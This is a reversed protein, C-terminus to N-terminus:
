GSGSWAPRGPVHGETAETAAPAAHGEAETTAGHGETAHAAPEMGFWNRMAAEDGFFVNYWLMGSFIAGMALVGLPILMVAPSEHPEYHGHGHDDHGHADHGHHHDDHGHAKARSEGFFTLFMLRWSYFSTLLAAFAGIYFATRGMESGSAFAAELIADKSYFGAFGFVRM